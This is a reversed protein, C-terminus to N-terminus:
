TSDRRSPTCSSPWRRGGPVQLISLPEGRFVLAAYAADQVVVIGNKKAFRVVEEFFERTASAGTPNNPYNLVLMKAKRLVKAPIADLDPLFGNEERLPLNFVEGGYYRAHTGLVPYGPTTMLVIDGPDVFCAPLLSLATKSGISHLIESEPDIGDVGFVTKMYHAATQRFSDCGNDAYGRNEPLSAEHQLKQVVEPYAM